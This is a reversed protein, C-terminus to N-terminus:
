VSLTATIATLEGDDAIAASVGTESVTITGSTFSTPGHEVASEILIVYDGSPVAEGNVDTGDWAVTYDGTSRTAASMTTDNAGSASYWQPLDDLWKEGKPPNFWLSVTDVFNGDTDEIWVAVFPRKPNGDGSATYTFDVLLEGSAPFVGSATDTDTGTETGTETDAAATTTASTAASTPASTAESSEDTAFVAEDSNGCAPLVLMAGAIAAGGLRARTTPLAGSRRVAALYRSRQSSM